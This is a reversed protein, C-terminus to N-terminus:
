IHHTNKSTIVDFELPNKIQHAISYIKINILKMLYDFSVKKIEGKKFEEEIQSNVLNKCDATFEIFIKEM